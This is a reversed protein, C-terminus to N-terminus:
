SLNRAKCSSCAASSTAIPPTNLLPSWLTARSADLAYETVSACVGSSSRSSTNSSRTAPEHETNPYKLQTSLNGRECHTDTKKNKKRQKETEKPVITKTNTTKNNQQEEEVRTTQYPKTALSLTEAAPGARTTNEAFAELRRSPINTKINKATHSKATAQHQKKYKLNKSKSVQAHSDRM